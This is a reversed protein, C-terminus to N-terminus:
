CASSCATESDKRRRGKRSPKHIKRHIFHVVSVIDAGVIFGVVLVIFVIGISGTTVASPRSDQASEKKRKTASLQSTDVLLDKKIQEVAEDVEQQSVNVHLVPPCECCTASTTVERETVAVSAAETSETQDPVTCNYWFYHWVTARHGGSGSNTSFDCFVVVDLLDRSCTVNVLQGLSLFRRTKRPNTKPVTWCERVALDPASLWGPTSSKNDPQLYVYDTDNVVPCAPIDCLAHQRTDRSTYCWPLAMAGHPNRCKSGPLDGTSRDSFYHSRKFPLGAAQDAKHLWEKCPRGTVTSHMDGRYTVGDCLFVLPCYEWGHQSDTTYCWPRVRSVQGSSTAKYLVLDKGEAM